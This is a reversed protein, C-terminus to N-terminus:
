VPAVEGEEEGDWYHLKQARVAIMVLGHTDVGQEFWHDLSKDWHQEFSNRDHILSAKGEIHIYMGPKGLFGLLGAGGMYTIGVNADHIIDQVMKRDDYTFFYSDGTYDVNRNNSMPRASITGDMAHTALVCFDIERMSESLQQVTLTM